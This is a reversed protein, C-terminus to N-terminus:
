SDKNPTWFEKWQSETLWTRDGCKRCRVHMAASRGFIGVGTKFKPVGGNGSNSVWDHQCVGLGDTSGVIKDASEQKDTTM